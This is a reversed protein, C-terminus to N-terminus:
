FTGGIKSSSSSGASDTKAQSGAAALTAASCQVSPTTWKRLLDRQADQLLM